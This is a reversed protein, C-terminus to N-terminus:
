RDAEEATTTMREFVEAEAAIRLREQEGATLLSLARRRVAGRVAAAFRNCTGCDTRRSGIRGPRGAAACEPCPHFPRAAARHDGLASAEALTPRARNQEIYNHADVQRAGPRLRYADLPNSRITTM